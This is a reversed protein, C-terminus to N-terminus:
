TRLISQSGVTIKLDAVVRKGSKEEVAEVRLEGNFGCQLTVKVVCHGSDDKADPDFTMDVSGIARNFEAKKHNGEFVKVKL